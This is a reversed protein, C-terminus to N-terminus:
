KRGGVRKGKDQKADFEGVQVQRILRQAIESDPRLRLAERLCREAHAADKARIWVRAENLWTYFQEDNNTALTRAKEWAKAASKWDPAVGFDEALFFNVAYDQVLEFDEPALTASKKSLKMAEKYIKEKSWGKIKGIQPYHVLYLQAMNYLFDPNKPSLQLAREMHKLGVEYDGNHFFHLGLNNYPDPLDSKYSLAKEWARLAGAQDGFYDYLIEGYLNHLVAEDDYRKLAEEYLEKLLAARRRVQQALVEKQEATTEPLRATRMEQQALATQRHHFHKMAQVFRERQPLLDMLAARAQDLDEPIEAPKQETNAAGVSTKAKAFVNSGTSLYTFLMLAAVLLLLRERNQKM